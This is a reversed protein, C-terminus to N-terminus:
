YKFDYTVVNLFDNHSSVFENQGDLDFYFGFVHFM